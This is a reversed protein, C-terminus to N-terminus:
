PKPSVVVATGGEIVVKSEIDPDELLQSQVQGSALRSALRLNELEAHRVEAKVKRVDEIRHLLKFDELLPHSGPLAEIFLQGTPVIITDSAREAATLYDTLQQRLTDLQTQDSGAAKWRADFEDIDFNALDDPDRLNGYADVFEALMYKTLYCVEKLPFIIYNGKYGLPNDLDAIEHLLTLAGGVGGYTPPCITGFQASVRMGISTMSPGSAVVPVQCDPAPSPCIVPLNYLRFFQQDRVETDWIAQMYYIINQKVHIRLQDIAVDRTFHAEMATTYARTAVQYADSSQRLKDQADALAQEVYQLRANLAKRNAELLNADAEGPDPAMGFSLVKLVMPTTITKAIDEKLATSVLADRLANRMALQANVQAELSATLRAQSEWQSKLVELTVEDGALGSTLFQLASRFSDDLLTRAIIWQYKLLWAEDIQDPAPVEQAVLIVPRARYIAESITYRRQLEYFLYTVTLENNPNAIEGSATSDMESSTATDVQLSRELRYQEAAKLTAEHFEKKNAVSENSQDTGFSSESGISGIGINFSGHATMKFNTNTIAKLMIAAEARAVQSSEQSRSSLSKDIEREARSTKVNTKKSYKRVEGPALPITSVLDGAQYPGPVWQQRYTLLLGFNYTDKAFVDFAYPEDLAENLRDGLRTIRALPGDPITTIAAIITAVQDRAEQPPPAGPSWFMMSPALQTVTLRQSDSLSSWYPVVEPFATQVTDPVPMQVMDAVLARSMALFDKLQDVDEITDGPIPTLGAEEQIQVTQDYLEGAAFALNRDFLHMWVDKFAVQLVQFDHFAIADAPGGRLTKVDELDGMIADVDPRLKMLADLRARAAALASSAPEGPSAAILPKLTELDGLVPGIDSVLKAGSQIAGMQTIAHALVVQRPDGVPAALIISLNTLEQVVADIDAQSVLGPQLESIQAAVGALVDQNLGDPTTSAVPV